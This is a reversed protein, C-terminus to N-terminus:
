NGALYARWLQGKPNIMGHQDHQPECADHSPPVTPQKGGKSSQTPGEPAMSILGPSSAKLILWGLDETTSKMRAM